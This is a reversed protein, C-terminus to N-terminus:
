ENKEEHKYELNMNKLIDDLRNDIVKLFSLNKDIKELRISVEDKPIYKKKIYFTIVELFDLLLIDLYFIIIKV